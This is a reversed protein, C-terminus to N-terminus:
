KIQDFCVCSSQFLAFPGFMFDTQSFSARKCNGQQLCFPIYATTCQAGNQRSPNNRGKEM